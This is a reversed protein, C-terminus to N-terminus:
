DGLDWNTEYGTNIHQQTECGAGIQTAYLGPKTICQELLMDAQNLDTRSDGVSLHHEALAKVTLLYAANTLHDNEEACSDNISLGSVANHYAGSYENANFDSTATVQYQHARGCYNPPPSSHDVAWSTEVPAPSEVSGVAQFGSHTKVSEYLTFALLIAAPVQLAVNKRSRAVLFVIALGIALWTLIM